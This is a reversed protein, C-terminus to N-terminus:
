HWQWQFQLLVICPFSSPNGGSLGVCYVAPAVVAHLKHRNFILFTGGSRVCIWLIRFFFPPPADKIKNKIGVGRVLCLYIFYIFLAWPLFIRWGTRVQPVPHFLYPVCVLVVVGGGILSIRRWKWTMQHPPWRRLPGGCSLFSLLLTVQGRSGRRSTGRCHLGLGRRNVSYFPWWIAFSVVPSVTLWQICLRLQLVDNLMM